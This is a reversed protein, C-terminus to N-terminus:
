GLGASLAATFRCEKTLVVPQPSGGNAPRSCSVWAVSLRPSAWPCSAKNLLALVGPIRRPTERLKVGCGMAKMQIFWGECAAAGHKHHLLWELPAPEGGPVWFCGQRSGFDPTRSAGGQLALYSGGAAALGEAAGPAACVGTPDGRGRGPAWGRRQLGLSASATVGIERSM